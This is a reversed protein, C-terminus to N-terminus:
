LPEVAAPDVRRIEDALQERKVKLSATRPFDKNWLLYGHVRKYDPLLRNRRRLEAPFEDRDDARVAIVLRESRESWLYHEAFICFEKVALGEFANEIDEPYVNKGGATVIMNKKRGVLVLHGSPELRGLDGTLLWGDRITRATLEPEKLYHAMVTRGAAAVEGFGDPGPDVIKVETGPLPRGVTDPRYDDMANLTIVTGAETLGYGNAVQIGLDYFFRLTAPDTFAGGVFLAKLKGGFGQHVPRLLLRSLALNPRRRTLMRNLGILLGALTRGALRERLGTELNKLIMPVLAMYAIGYRTFAEKVLEPRLTRLHVVTAGCAYPGVFGVMFDIAHNTPLISLYRDGKEFRYQKLLAHCQWLYNGHTLVCGKPTGGTGSSYVICAHDERTRAVVDREGEGEGEEWRTANRLDFDPPAETVLVTGDFSRDRWLHHEIILTDAECHALLAEHEAPSLKPDLPVLTAGIRFVACATIHWKSQNTMLIAARTCGRDQLWAALPLSAARVERYTLRCRERDRDAEILCPDDAFAEFAEELAGQLCSHRELDIM